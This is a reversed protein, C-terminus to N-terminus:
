RTVTFTVVTIATRCEVCRLAIDDFICRCLATPLIKMRLPYGEGEGKVKREWEKGQGGEGQGKRGMGEGEQGEMEGKGERGWLGALPNPSASYAGKAPMPLARNAYVSQVVVSSIHPFCQSFSVDFMLCRKTM